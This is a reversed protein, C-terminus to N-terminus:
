KEPELGQRLLEVIRAHTAEADAKSTYRWTAQDIRGGFIMTEWLMPADDDDSWPRCQDVGLFVTSVRAEGIEDQAVIREDEHTAFWRSWQHVNCRVPEGTKDDLIFFNM